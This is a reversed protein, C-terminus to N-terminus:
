AARRDSRAFDSPSPRLTPIFAAISFGLVFRGVLFAALILPDRPSRHKTRRTRRDSARRAWAVSSAQYETDDGQTAERQGSVLAAM